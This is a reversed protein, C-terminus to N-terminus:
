KVKRSAIARKSKNAKKLDSEVTVAGAYTAIEVRFKDILATPAMLTVQEWRPAILPGSQGIQKPGGPINPGVGFQGM